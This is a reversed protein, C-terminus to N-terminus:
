YYNRIWTPPAGNDTGILDTFSVTEYVNSLNAKLM